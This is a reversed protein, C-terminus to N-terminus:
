PNPKSATLVYFRSLATEDAVALGHRRVLARIDEGTGIVNGWTLEYWQAMVAYIQVPDRLETPRSPYREDFILLEGGPRLARVCRAIVADKRSPEIEHLVLFTTVLDVSEDPV